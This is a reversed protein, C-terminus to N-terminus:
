QSASLSSTFPNPISTTTMSGPSKWVPKVALLSLTPTMVRGVHLTVSHYHLTFARSLNMGVLWDAKARCLAAQYLNAYEGGDRLTEFGRRIANEELSSIWLRQVPKTCGCQNYVLHFIAEGERGADCCNVCLSVGPHNMLGALIEYQERTAEVVQFQWPNPFVPLDPWTWKKYRPDYAEPPATEVLHGLCWSVLWGNGEYYGKRKQTAHLVEAIM